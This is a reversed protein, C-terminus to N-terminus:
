VLSLDTTCSNLYFRSLALILRQFRTTTTVMSSRYKQVNELELSVLVSRPINFPDYYQVNNSCSIRNSNTLEMHFILM